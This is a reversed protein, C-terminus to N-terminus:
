RAKVNENGRSAEGDKKEKRGKGKKREEREKVQTCKTVRGIGVVRCKIHRM